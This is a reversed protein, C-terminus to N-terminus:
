TSVGPHHGQLLEARLDERSKPADPEEDPVEVRRRGHVVGTLRKLSGRLAEIQQGHEDLTVLSATLRKSLDGPLPQADLERQLADVRSWLIGCILLAATCLATFFSLLVFTVTTM